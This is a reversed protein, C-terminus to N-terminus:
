RDATHLVEALLARVRIGIENPIPRIEEATKGAPGALQRVESLHEDLTRLDRTLPPRM